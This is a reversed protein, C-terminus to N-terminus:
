LGIFKLFMKVYSQQAWMLRLVDILFYLFLIIYWRAYYTIVSIYYLHELYILSDTLM